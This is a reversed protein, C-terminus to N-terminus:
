SATLPPAFMVKEHDPLKHFAQSLIRRLRGEGKTQDLDATSAVVSELASSNVLGGLTQAWDAGPQQEEAGAM